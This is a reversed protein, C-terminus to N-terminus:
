EEGKLITNLQKIEKTYIMRFIILMDLLVLFMYIAISVYSRSLIIIQVFGFIYIMIFYIFENKYRNFLSYGLIKKVFIEKKRSVLITLLIYYSSLISIFIVLLLIAGWVVSSSQSIKIQEKYGSMLVNNFQLDNLELGYKKIGENIASKNEKSDYIRIPNAIAQTTLYGSFIRLYEENLCVFVPNILFAHDENTMQLSESFIQKRNDKYYLVCVDNEKLKINPDASYIQSQGFYKLTIEKQKMSEPAFLVLSDQHFLEEENISSDFQLRKYYNENLLMYGFDMDTDVENPMQIESSFLSLGETDYWFSQVFGADATKTLDMFMNTLNKNFQSDGTMFSQMADGTLQFSALTLYDEQAQYAEKVQMEKIMRSVEASLQPITFVLGIFIAFKIIYSIYLSIRFNFFNKLMNSISYRKVTILTLFSLGIAGMFLILQITGLKLFYFLDMTPFIIKQLPISVLFLIIPIILVDKNLSKWIDFAKYGNLKYVSIEKLKSIPYFVCMLCFIILLIVSLIITLFYITGEGFAVRYDESILDDKSENLFLSLEDLIDERNHSNSIITYEGNINNSKLSYFDGLPMIIIPTDNFLDKITGVQKSQKTDISSLWENSDAPLRGSTLKISLGEFFEKEYIGSKYIIERGNEYIRDTKIITADYQSQISKLEQLFDDFAVTSNKVYIKFADSKMEITNFFEVDQTKMYFGFAVSTLISVISLLIAMSKKM